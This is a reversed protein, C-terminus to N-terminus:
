NVSRVGRFGRYPKREDADTRYSDFRDATRAHNEHYPWSGGRFGFVAEEDEGVMWSQQNCDGNEDLLGDGHSGNFTRTVMSGVPVVPTQLSGGLDMAGYYSAGAATRKGKSNVGHIGVRLPGRGGDGGQLRRCNPYSPQYFDGNPDCVDEYDGYDLLICHVNGDSYEDGNESPAPKGDPDLLTTTKNFGGAALENVGWVFERWIAPKPGRASKEFELETMARLGAWDAYALMDWYNLFNCARHPHDTRYIGNDLKITNRYDEKPRNEYTINPDFRRKAQKSTLSNLFDCYQGQTLEYKMQYFANYGKPFDPGLQGKKDGSYTDVGPIQADIYYLDGKNKGINISSEDSIRFPGGHGDEGQPDYSFFANIPSTQSGRSTNIENRDSFSKVTGLEFSGQPVYVMELGYAKTKAVDDELEVTLQFRNDGETSSKRYIYVGLSDEAIEISADEAYASCIRNPKQGNKFFVWAADWNEADRWSADWSIQLSLAKSNQKGAEGAPLRSGAQRAKAPLLSAIMLYQKGTRYRNGSVEKIATAATDSPVEPISAFYTVILGVLVVSIRILSSPM